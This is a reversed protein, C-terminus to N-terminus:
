QLKHKLGHLFASPEAWSAGNHFRVCFKRAITTMESFPDFSGLVMAGGTANAYFLTRNQSEAPLVLSKLASPPMSGTLPDVLGPGCWCSRRQKKWPSTDAHLRSSPLSGAPTPTVM